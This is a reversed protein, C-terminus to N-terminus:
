SLRLWYLTTISILGCYAWCGSASSWIWNIVAAPARTGNDVKARQSRLMSSSRTLWWPWNAASFM